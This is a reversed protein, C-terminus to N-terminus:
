GAPQALARWVSPARLEDELGDLMVKHALLEATSAAQVLLGAVPWAAADHASDQAGAGIDMELTEQGRTMGLWVEALLQADLKAGHYIRHANSVAYRECLADLSNRKGPHLQRALVLSDKIHDVRDRLPPLGCRSLEANLFGVDFPANHIVLCAGDLYALITAAEDAFLAKDRLDDLRLGHVAAAGEDVEREPNFYCHLDRGTLRRGVMEICGLEIVRHGDEVRLGTTETDLFVIREGGENSM